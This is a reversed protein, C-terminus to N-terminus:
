FNVSYAILTLIASLSSLAIAKFNLGVGIMISDHIWVTGIAISSGYSAILLSDFFLTTDLFTSLILPTSLATTLSKFFFLVIFTVDM